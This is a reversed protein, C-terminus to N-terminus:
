KYKHSCFLLIDLSMEDNLNKLSVDTKFLSNLLKQSNEAFFSCRLFFHGTTKTDSGCDYMSSPADKFNHRFKHENLHSFKFRPRSLLNVGVPDLIAFLFRQKLNFFEKFM